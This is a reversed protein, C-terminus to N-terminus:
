PQQEMWIDYLGADRLSRLYAVEDAPDIWLVNGTVPATDTHPVYSTTVLVLPVAAM